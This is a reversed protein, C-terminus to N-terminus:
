GVISVYVYEVRMSALIHTGTLYVVITHALSEGPVVPIRTYGQELTEPIAVNM